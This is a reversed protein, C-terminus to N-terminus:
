RIKELAGLIGDTLVEKSDSDIERFLHSFAMCGILWSRIGFTAAKSTSWLSPGTTPGRGCSM